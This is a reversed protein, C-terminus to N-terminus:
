RHLRRGGADARRDDPVACLWCPVAAAHPSLKSGPADRIDSLMGPAFQMKGRFEPFGSYWPILPPPEPIDRLRVLGAVTPFRVVNDTM